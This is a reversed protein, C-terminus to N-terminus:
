RQARRPDRLPVVRQLKPLNGEDDVSVWLARESLVFAYFQEDAIATSVILGAITHTFGVAFIVLLIITGLLIWLGSLHFFGLISLGILLVLAFSWRIFCFIVRKERIRGSLFLRLTLLTSVSCGLRGTQYGLLFDDHSM